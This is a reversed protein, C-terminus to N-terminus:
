FGNLVESLAGESITTESGDRDYLIEIIMDSTVWWGRCSPVAGYCDHGHFDDVELTIMGNIDRITAYRYVGDVDAIVRQGVELMSKDM